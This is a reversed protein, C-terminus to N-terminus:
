ASLNFKENYRNIKDFAKREYYIVTPIYAINVLIWSIPFAAYLWFVTHFAEMQFITTLFLIRTGTCGILTIIAPPTSRKM